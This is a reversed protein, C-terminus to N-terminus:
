RSTEAHPDAGSHIVAVTIGKGRVSALHADDLNMLQLHTQNLGGLTHLAQQYRIGLDREGYEQLHFWAITGAEGRPISVVLGPM